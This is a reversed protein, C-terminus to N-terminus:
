FNVFDGLDQAITCTPVDEFSVPVDIKTAKSEDRIARDLVKYEDILTHYATRHEDRNM